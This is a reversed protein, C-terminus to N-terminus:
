VICATNASTATAPAWASVNGAVDVAHFQVIYTGKTSPTFSAANTVTAGWTSGGNSSVRYDYRAFGSTADTSGSASVTLHHKCTGSGLGGSVSPLTPAATDIKVTNSAGPSAPTWASTLGANDVAQFQVITTGNASIPYTTGAILTPLSWTTGGNSSTRVNLGKLGSTADAAGSATITVPATTRWSLSGGSVTPATPATRDIMATGASTVPSPTWASVNGAVDRSRFQVLTTGENSIVAAAAATAASWTTGGNTSSRYDYGALGSVADSGGSGSITVSAVNQWGASGGNVTPASPATRDLKVTSAAGAVAPTWASTNGAGDVAQFQVITTGEVSVPDSAGATAASWSVGNDTSSRYQYSFGSGGADSSNSANITVSPLTQWSLSGGAVTPATPATRDIRATAQVWASQNAANDTGEFQVLTEGESSVTLTSGAAPASWTAGGDTSTRYRYGAFGSGGSDSSAAATLTIAAVNKWTSSGGTVSPSSPATRDIRADAVVWASTRGVGDIARFGVQIAGQNSVTLSPGASVSSWTAGGDTSTRYQYGAVGSGADTSGSASLLISAVSQWTSSGGSVAPATPATRDIRATSAATASSPTWASSNGANDVSRFQVLTEGEATITASSGTTAGSWSAGGDTSTRYEDHAFGSGGADAATGATITESPVNKWTLSGGSVGSLTPATRDLRVTSAATATAPAWASPNGAGDISHFQVLTTGEASITAVAGSTPASWTQGNDTSTRYAYSALASGGADTSGSATVDVSAVPQWSLSGGSVTPATPLTRDIRATDQVWGSTNGAGDIARFRVLTEGESVVLDDGGAVPASWTTGGDTSASYQYGATGSGGLDTSASASIDISPVSQWAPSGGSVTPATPNTRDIQVPAEIWASDLNALDVSRFQVLTQGEASVTLTTGTVPATWTQGGDTSSRYQYYAVGGGVADTSGSATLLTSVINQWGTTGGTVVPDTPITRDLRVTSGNDPSSPAWTSANGAADVSRFQVLTEGDATVSVDGGPTASSWSVGGDTSTRAEYHDFGAGGVDPGGSAVVDISPANQWQPEGGSVVPEAPALRDLRATADASGAAPAWASLNGAKDVSRFQALTEGDTSATVLAGSVPASWTSGGDTSTRSQYGALGSGADTAGSATIAISPVARWILSGGAAVPASPATTDILWRVTAIRKSTGSGRVEVRFRHAGDPLATYRKPSKCKAFPKRDLSCLTHLAKGRTKWRFSASSSASVARPKSTVSVRLSTAALAMGAVVSALLAVIVIVVVSRRPAARWWSPVVASPNM